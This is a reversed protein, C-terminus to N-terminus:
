FNQGTHYHIARKDQVEKTWDKKWPVKTKDGDNKWRNLYSHTQGEPCFKQITPFLATLLLLDNFWTKFRAIFQCDSGSKSKTFVKFSIM